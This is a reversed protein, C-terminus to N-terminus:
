LKQRSALFGRPSQRRVVRLSYLFALGFQSTTSSRSARPLSSFSFQTQCPAWTSRGSYLSARIESERPPASALTM